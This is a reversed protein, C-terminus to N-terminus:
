ERVVQQPNKDTRLGTFRIHRVHNTDTMKATNKWLNNVRPVHTMASPTSADGSTGAKRVVASTLSKVTASPVM